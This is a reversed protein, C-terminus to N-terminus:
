GDVIFFLLFFISNLLLFYSTKTVPSFFDSLQLHTVNSLNGLFNILDYSEYGLHYLSANAILMGDKFRLQVFSSSFKLSQLSPANLELIITQDDLDLNVHKLLPCLRIFRQFTTEDDYTIKKLSLFTLNKFGVFSSPLLIRCCKLDLTTLNDFSFISSPILYEVQYFSHELHRIRHGRLLYDLWMDLHSYFDVTNNGRLAYEGNYIFKQINSRHLLLNRNVKTTLNQIRSFSYQNHIIIQSMSRWKYRWNRSLLSTNIAEELSLRGLIKDIINEPLSSIMDKNLKLDVIEKLM